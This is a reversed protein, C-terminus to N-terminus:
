NLITRLWSKKMRWFYNAAFDKWRLNLNFFGQSHFTQGDLSDFASRIKLRASEHLGCPYGAGIQHPFRRMETATWTLQSETGPRQELVFCPAAITRRPIRDSLGDTLKKGEPDGAGM